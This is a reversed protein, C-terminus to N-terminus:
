LGNASFHQYDKASSWYGGWEWGIREFASVVVDNPRILGEAERTRDAYSAGAPPEIPGNRPVYPNQIPNIDIALGYAHQSWSGGGGSARCNFGSTNNAAMSKDDDGDYVDVLEMRRIPFRADFLAEFVGLVERAHDSRVVIEGPHVRDDYGWHTMRLLRLDALPVPCGPRWSATMRERVAADIPSVSGRFAVESSSPSPAPTPTTVTPSLSGSSPPTIRPAAAEPPASCGATALLVAFVTLRRM